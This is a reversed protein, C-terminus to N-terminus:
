VVPAGDIPAVGAPPSAEPTRAELEPRQVDQVPADTSQELAAPGGSADFALEGQLVTLLELASKVCDLDAAYQQQWRGDADPCTVTEAFERPHVEFGQYNNPQLLRILGAAKMVKVTDDTLRGIREAEAAQDRLQDATAMVRDIVRETM